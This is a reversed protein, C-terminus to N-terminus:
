LPPNVLVPPNQLHLSSHQNLGSDAPAAKGQCCRSAAQAVGGALSYKKMGLDSTSRVLLCRPLVRPHQPELPSFSIAPGGGGGRLVWGWRPHGLGRLSDKCLMLTGKGGWLASKFSNRQATKEGWM